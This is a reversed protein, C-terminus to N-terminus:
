YPAAEGQPPRRFRKYSWLYQEPCENILAETARNLASLSAQLDAHHLEAPAERFRIEFGEQGPLRMAYAMFTKAQTQQILKCALTGTYAMRGYFPAHQGSRRDPVQDPLIATVAGKKMARVLGVVGRATAPHLTSGFHERGKLMLQDLQPLGSPAFMAHFDFQRALWFNLVEWNGLHPALIMVPQGADIAKRLLAEGDVHAIRRLGENPKHWFLAVELTNKTSEILSRRILQKRATPSLQPYCLELNIASIRKADNPLTAALWGLASALVRNAAFPLLSLVRLVARLSQGKIRQIHPNTRRGM